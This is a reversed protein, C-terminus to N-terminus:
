IDALWLNVLVINRYDNICSIFSYLTRCKIRIKIISFVKDDQDIELFSTSDIVSNSVVTLFENLKTLHVDCPSMEVCMENANFIESSLLAALTQIYNVLHTNAISYAYSDSRIVISAQLTADKMHLM